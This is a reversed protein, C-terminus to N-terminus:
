RPVDPRFGPRQCAAIDFRAPVVRALPHQQDVPHRPLRGSRPDRHPPGELTEPHGLEAVAQHRQGGVRTGALLEFPDGFLDALGAAAGPHPQGSGARQALFV